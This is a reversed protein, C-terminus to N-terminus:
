ARHSLMELLIEKKNYEPHELVQELLVQLAEGVARGPEVGAALLDKGTVALGKLSICQNEKLIEQYLCEYEDM